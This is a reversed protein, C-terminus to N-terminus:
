ESLGSTTDVPVTLQKEFLEGMLEQGQQNLTVGDEELAAELTLQNEEVTKLYAAHLDFLPLEREQVAEIGLEMYQTYTLMRSNYENSQLQNPSSTVMVILAEPLIEQIQTINRSLYDASDDLSIDRAHDGEAPILFFIVEANTEALEQAANTIYLEYSDEEASTLNTSKIENSLQDQMTSVVGDIWTEGEPLQGYFAIEASGNLSDIYKIYDLVPLQDRKESFASIDAIGADEDAEKTVSSNNGATEAASILKEQQGNSYSYGMYVVLLTIMLLLVITLRGRTEMMKVGKLLM